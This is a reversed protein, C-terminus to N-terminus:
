PATQIGSPAHCPRLEGHRRGGSAPNPFLNATPLLSLAPASFAFLRITLPDTGSNFRLQALHTTTTKNRRKIM